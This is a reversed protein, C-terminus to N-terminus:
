NQLLPIVVHAIRLLLARIETKEERAEPLGVVESHARNRNEIDPTHVIQLPDIEVIKLVHMRLVANDDPQNGQSRTKKQRPM